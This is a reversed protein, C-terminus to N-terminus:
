SSLEKEGHSFTARLSTSPGSSPCLQMRLWEAVSQPDGLLDENRIRIVRIGYANLKATRACDYEWTYEHVKGDVEIAVALEECYFDLIYGVYWYQRPFKLGDFRRDRLWSWLKREARTPHSRMERAFELNKVVGLNGRPCSREVTPLPARM